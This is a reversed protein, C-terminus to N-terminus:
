SLALYDQIFRRIRVTEISTHSRNSRCHLVDSFESSSYAMSIVAFGFGVMFQRCPVPLGSWLGSSFRNVGALRIYVYNQFLEIGSSYTYPHGNSVCNLRIRHITWERVRRCTESQGSGQHGSFNREFNSNLQASDQVAVM